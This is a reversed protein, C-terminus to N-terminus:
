SEIKKKPQIHPLKKELIKLENQIKLHTCECKHEEIQICGPCYMHKCSLCEVTIRKRLCKQCNTM